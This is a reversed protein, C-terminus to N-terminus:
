RGCLSAGGGGPGDIADAFDRAGNTLAAYDTSDCLSGSCFAQFDVAAPTLTQTTQGSGGSRSVQVTQGAQDLATCHCNRGAGRACDRALQEFAGGRSVPCVIAQGERLTVKTTRGAVSIDLVTGRVGIAATPTTVSYAKKDLAGTTFRFLGKTLKVAVTQASEGGDYVFRDLVVRSIPGVALNTSDLFVLKATSAAGTRVIEDRFVPDGANLRAAAGALERSVDNKATETAGINQPAAFAPAALFALAGLVRLGGYIRM